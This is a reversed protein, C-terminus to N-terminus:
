APAKHEHVILNGGRIIGSNSYPQGDTTCVADIDVFISDGKISGPVGEDTVFIWVLGEEGTPGTCSGVLQAQNTVGALSGVIDAANECSEATDSIGFFGVRLLETHVKVGAGLDNYQFQGRYFRYGDENVCQAQFGFTAKGGNVGDIWGGGTVKHCGVIAVTIGIVAAALRGISVTGKAKMM